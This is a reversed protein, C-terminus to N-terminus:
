ASHIKSIFGEYDRFRYIYTNFERYFLEITFGFSYKLNEKDDDGRMGFYPYHHFYRGFVFDCMEFYSRTDLIHHHWIEDIEHSPPIVLYKSIYKRCIFIYMKYQNIADQADDENWAYPFLDDVKCIKEKLQSFDIKVLYDWIEDLDDTKGSYSVTTKNLKPLTSCIEDIRKKTYNEM